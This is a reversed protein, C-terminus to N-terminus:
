GSGKRRTRGTGIHRGNKPAAGIGRVADYAGGTQVPYGHRGAGSDFRRRRVAPRSPVKVPAIGFRMGSM